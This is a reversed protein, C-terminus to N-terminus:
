MRAKTQRMERAADVARNIWVDCTASEFRAGAALQQEIHKITSLLHLGEVSYMELSLSLRVVRLKVLRLLGAYSPWPSVVDVFSGLVIGYLFMPTLGYWRWARWAFVAAALWLLRGVWITVVYRTPLMSSMLGHHRAAGDKALLLIGRAVRQCRFAWQVNVAYAVFFIAALFGDM